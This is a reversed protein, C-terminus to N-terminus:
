SCLRRRYEAIYFPHKNRDSAEYRALEDIKDWERPTIEPFFIEDGELPITIGVHSVILRSVLRWFLQYIQGGGIICIRERRAIAQVYRMDGTRCGPILLSSDRSLVVNRRDHNTLPHGISRIISECTRHGMVLTSHATEQQFHKLDDKLDRGWPIDDHKGIVLNNSVAVIMTAGTIM